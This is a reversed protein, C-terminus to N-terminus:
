GRELVARLDDALWDPNTLQGYGYRALWRGNPGVLTVAATHDIWYQGGGTDVRRWTVNWQRTSATVQPLTARLGIIDPMFSDLYARLVPATDRAPDLTVFVVRVRQRLPGLQRLSQALAALTLPCVDPCHTYGFFVLVARGREHAWSFAKGQTDTLGPLTPAPLPKLATGHLDVSHSQLHAWAWVAALLVLSALAARRASGKWGGHRRPSAVVPGAVETQTM